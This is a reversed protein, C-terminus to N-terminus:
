RVESCQGAVCAFLPAFVCPLAQLRCGRAEFGACITDRQAAAAALVQAAGRQSTNVGCSAYCATGLYVSTCDADTTCRLDAAALVARIADSSAQSQEDCSQGADEASADGASSEATDPGNDRGEESGDRLQASHEDACSVLCIALVPWIRQVNCRPM